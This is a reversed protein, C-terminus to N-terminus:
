WVRCAEVGAHRQCIAEQAEPREPALLLAVTVLFAALVHPVGLPSADKWSDTTAGYRSPSPGAGHRSRASGSRAGHGLRRSRSAPASPGEAGCPAPVPAPASATSIPTSGLFVTV